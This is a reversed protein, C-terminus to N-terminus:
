RGSPLVADLTAQALARRSAADRMITDTVVARVGTSEVDDALAADERDLVLADAFDAYLRAVGVASSEHGLSVLMKDAPGKLARGGIIPSVAVVPAKTEVLANRIGPVALIPGISVLPNSPAVIVAEADQLAEIVGAAPRAGDAGEFRLARVEDQQRRRVFYEQFSLEGDDTSVITRVREDSMPLVRCSLGHASALTATAESLSGGGRLLQTRMLHTGIDKDGLLFWADAGLQKARELMQYTDGALGWGQEENVVGALTYIVTDIDPSVHLGFFEEDDATNSIVTVSAPDVVDILGRLFRAAGVGGALVTIM